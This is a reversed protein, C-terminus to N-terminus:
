EAVQLFSKQKHQFSLSLINGAIILLAGTLIRLSVTEGLLSTSLMLAVPLYLYSIVSNTTTSLVTTAHVWLTHGLLTVVLSLYLLVLWENISGQWNAQGLFPLFVLLGFAFQGLTRLENPITSNKQHIIPLIAYFFGSIIGLILGLTQNSEFSYDPVVLISGLVALLVGAVDTPMVKNRRLLWGLIILQIGYTSFGLAGLSASALKIGLFYFLWHLGFALGLLLMVGLHRRSIGSFKKRFLAILLIGLAALGLRVLGITISNFSMFRVSVPVSGFLALAISAQILATRASM